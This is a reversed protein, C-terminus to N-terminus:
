GRWEEPLTFLIRDGGATSHGCVPCKVKWEGQFDELCEGCAYGGQVKAFDDGNLGFEWRNAQDNYRRYLPKIM